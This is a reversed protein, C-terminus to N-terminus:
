FSARESRLRWGGTGLMALLLLGPAYPGLPLQPPALGADSIIFSDISGGVVVDEGIATAVVDRDALTPDAEIAAAIHIAVEAASEGALTPVLLTVDEITIEVNGGAATGSVSLSNENRCTRSCGDADILNADDCEEEESQVNGDACFEACEAPLSFDESASIEGPDESTSAAAGLGRKAFATWMLCENAGASLDSEADLLSDRAEIFTPNCPQLQLGDVVLQMALNNGGSGGYLDPDFGHAAVLQWLMEWLALAWVEGVGHPAPQTEIAALTLDNLTFDTSYRRTRIGPGAFGQATSYTGFGVSEAGTDGTSAGFALTFFDSWGEGLSSSQASGLCSSNAAGGTLRNSLGHAYEHIIIGGDLTGDRAQGDRITAEVGSASEAALAAGDSQGIFLSPIDILPNTGSMVVIGDGENNVIIAADAGAEQANAVKEVFLCTGRDILAIAGDIDDENEFPSCGDTTSEGASDSADLAQVVEGSVIDGDLQPGFLAIGADYIGAVSPPSNVELMAPSSFLFMEMRGPFGDPPTGFLANNTGAGDQADAIVADNGAGGQGYNHTQFNGSAEDFGYSYFVDHALNTWYFLNTISAEEFVQPANTFDIPFDFVLGPGGDPRTGDAPSVFTDNADRDHQAIVNNGRTDTFEAGAVGNTDHWGYPSAGLSRDPSPGINLIHPGEDPNMVPPPGFSRYSGHAIWDSRALVEGTDADIQLNWWHSGDPLRVVLDWALKLDEGVPQYVLKVPIDDRSVLGGAFVARRAPGGDRDLLRHKGTSPLSLARAAAALAERANLTPRGLKSKVAAGSVFHSWLGFVRGNRDVALGMDGGMVEIGRVRQRLNLHTTGNRRKVFSRSRLDELDGDSLGLKTRRARLHEFAIDAARDRARSVVSPDEQAFTPSAPPGGLVLLAAIGRLVRRTSMNRM